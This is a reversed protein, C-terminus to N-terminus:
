RIRYAFLEEETNPSDATEGAIMVLVRHGGTDIPEAFGRGRVEAGADNTYGATNRVVPRAGSDADTDKVKELSAYGRVEVAPNYLQAVFYVREGRHRLAAEGIVREPTLAGQRLIVYRGNYSTEAIPNDLADKIQARSSPEDRLQGALEDYIAAAPGAHLDEMGLEVATPESLANTLGAEIRPINIAALIVLLIGLVSLLGTFVRVRNVRDTTGAPV